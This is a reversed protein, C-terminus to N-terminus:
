SSIRSRNTQWFECLFSEIINMAKEEAQYYLDQNSKASEFMEEQAIILTETKDETTIKTFINKDIIPTSITDELVDVELIEVPPLLVKILGNKDPGQVKVENFDIGYTVVGDYEFWMKSYGSGLFSFFGHAETEAKAVNHYYCKLTTLESISRVDALTQEVEAESCGALFLVLLIVIGIIRQRM